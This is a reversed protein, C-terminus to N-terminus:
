VRRASIAMIPRSLSTDSLDGVDQEDYPRSGITDDIERQLMGELEARYASRDIVTAPILQYTLLEIDL